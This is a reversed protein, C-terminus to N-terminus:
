TCVAEAKYKNVLDINIPHLQIQVKKLKLHPQYNKKIFIYEIKIM